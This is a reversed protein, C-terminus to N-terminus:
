VAGTVLYLSSVDQQYSCAMAGGDAAIVVQGRFEAGEEPPTLERWASKRGTAADVRYVRSEGVNRAYYFRGDPSWRVPTVADVERPAGGEIRRLYFRGDKAIVFASGDPSVCSAREGEATM